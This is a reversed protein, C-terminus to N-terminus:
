SASGVATEETRIRCSCTDVELGAPHDYVAARPSILYRRSCSESLRYRTLGRTNGPTLTVKMYSYKSCTIWKWFRNLYNSTFYQELLAEDHNGRVLHAKGENALTRVFKVTEASNPGKNALDGLLFLQLDGSMPGLETLIKEIIDQLETLCGSLPDVVNATIM